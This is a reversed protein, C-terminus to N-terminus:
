RQLFSLVDYYSQLVRRRALVSSFHLFHPATQKPLTWKPVFPLSREKLIYGDGPGNWLTM